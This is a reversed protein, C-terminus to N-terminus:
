SYSASEVAIDSQNCNYYVTHFQVLRVLLSLYAFTVPLLSYCVALKFGASRGRGEALCVAALCGPGSASTGADKQKLMVDFVDHDQTNEIWREYAIPYNTSNLALLRARWPLDREGHHDISVYM